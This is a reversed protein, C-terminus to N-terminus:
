LTENRVVIHWDPGHYQTGESKSSVGNQAAVQHVLEREATTLSPEFHLGGSQSKSSKFARVRASLELRRPATVGNLMGVEIPTQHVVVHRAEGEGESKSSMETRRDECLTHIFKREGATLSPEFHLPSAQGPVAHWTNVRGTLEAKRAELLVEEKWKKRKTSGEAAQCFTSNVALATATATAIIGAAATVSQPAATFRVTTLLHGIVSSRALTRAFMACRDFCGM